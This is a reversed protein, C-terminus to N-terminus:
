WDRDTGNGRGLGNAFFPWFLIVFGLAVGPKLWQKM